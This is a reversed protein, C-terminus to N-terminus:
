KPAQTTRPRTAHNGKDYAMLFEAVSIPQERSGLTLPETYSFVIGSGPQQSDDWLRYLLSRGQRAETLTLPKQQLPAEGGAVAM